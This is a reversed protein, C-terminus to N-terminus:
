DARDAERARLARVTADRSEVIVRRGPAPLWDGALVEDAIEVVRQDVVTAPYVGNTLAISEELDRGDEWVRRLADPLREVFPGLVEAQGYQHIGSALARRMALPPGPHALLESWAADKAQPTPRSARAAAARRAGMDTNDRELEAAILADDAADRAALANVLTWRLDTDVALGPVEVSGDLLGAIWRVDDPEDVAAVLCRVWVLQLDSGPEAGALETRARSALMARVRTRNAPDGYREIAAQAQMLLTQLLSVDTETAAHDAVLRVFRRAPIEADRTMDWAAGWCLARALPEALGGLAETLTDLSREDLRIKTFTLDDENVLLLDPQTEGVLEDVVTRAGEVDLEVRRRRELQDGNREYLGLALRHARLTPHSEPAEQHIEVNTYRGDDDVEFSARMTAVGATELWQKSWEGLKRGSSRELADLFDSLEANGYEHTRFYERLGTLFADRSVWAVLQKLVAAGKAYTIGDFNTRVAETDPIDAAIPHTSPLQDQNLAWAKTGSAFEAWATTFRTAEAVALTGVYTAFSENLWLDDWWRMTVLDGFWMHAMEHMITGARSERAADTVKSRFIYHESFTVCGANEMAGFNFEPVFLQDYKGFPYPYDFADAFFDFGQRTIEFIEDADLHPVLSQRCYVGLAIEQDTGAVRHQEHVAHYPGAVLATIYTSMPLTPAFRWRGAQGDGPREVAERNSIVVWDAPAQVQLTFTAKLDPQDFCAYVRHADFPEFQTHLYVKGDAPDTFRHLGIGTRRYTCVADVVVENAAQLDELVLRAGDFADAPLPRGNLTAATVSRADLDLFTAAGPEDCGFRLTTRSGFTDEDGTLDLTVDYSVDSLLRARQRAEDRSLNDTASV